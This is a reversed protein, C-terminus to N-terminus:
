SVATENKKEWALVDSARYMVRKPGLSIWKPGKGARRWNALTQPTIRYRAAVQHPHFLDPTTM